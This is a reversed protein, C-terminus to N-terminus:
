LPSACTPIDDLNSVVVHFTFGKDRRSYVERHVFDEFAEFESCQNLCLRRKEGAECIMFLCVKMNVGTRCSIRHARSEEAAASGVKIERTSLGGSWVALAM